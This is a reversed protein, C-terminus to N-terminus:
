FRFYIFPNFGFATISSVSLVLLLVVLGAVVAHRYGPYAEFYIADQIQRGKKLYTFFSFLVAIALYFWFGAFIGTIRGPQFVFM